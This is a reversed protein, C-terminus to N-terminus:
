TGVNKGRVVVLAGKTVKWSHSTFIMTCVDNGLQEELVLNRRLTSLNRVDKFIWTNGNQIKVQVCVIGVITCPEDDAPYVNGFDEKVYDVFYHRHPTAHFSAGS